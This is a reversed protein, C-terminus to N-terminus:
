IQTILSNHKKDKCAKSSALSFRDVFETLSLPWELRMVEDGSAEDWDAAELSSSESPSMGSKSSESFSMM